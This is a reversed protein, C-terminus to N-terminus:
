TSITVIWYHLLIQLITGYLRFNKYLLIKVNQHIQLLLEAISYFNFARAVQGSHKMTLIKATWIDRRINSWSFELTYLISYTCACIPIHTHTHTHTMCVVYTSPSESTVEGTHIVQLWHSTLNTDTNSVDAEGMGQACWPVGHSAGGSSPRYIFLIAWTHIHVYNSSPLFPFLSLSRRLPIIALSDRLADPQALWVTMGVALPVYMDAMLVAVHSLPLYM